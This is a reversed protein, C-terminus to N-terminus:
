PSVIAARVAQIDKAVGNAFSTVLSERARDIWSALENESKRWIMFHFDVIINCAAVLLPVGSEIAAVTVTESKTLNDRFASVTRGSGDSRLLSM